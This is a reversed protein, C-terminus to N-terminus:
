RRRVEHALRGPRHAIRLEVAHRGRSPRSSGASSGRVERSFGTCRFYAFGRHSDVDELNKEEITKSENQCLRGRRYAGGVGRDRCTRRAVFFPAMLFLRNSALSTYGQAANVLSASSVHSPAFALAVYHDGRIQAPCQIREIEKEHHEHELVNGRFQM